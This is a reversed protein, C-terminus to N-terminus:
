LDLIKIDKGQFLSESGWWRLWQSQAFEKANSGGVIAYWGDPAIIVVSEWSTKVISVIDSLKMSSISAHDVLNIIKYEAQTILDMSMIWQVLWSQLSEVQFQLASYDKLSKALKEDIQKPSVWL